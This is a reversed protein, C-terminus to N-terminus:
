VSATSVSGDPVKPRIDVVGLAVVEPSLHVTQITPACTKPRIVSFVSLGATTAVVESPQLVTVALGVIPM